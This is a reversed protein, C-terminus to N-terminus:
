GAGGHGSEVSPAAEAAAGSRQPAEGPPPVEGTDFAEPAAALVGEGLAQRLQVLHQAESAGISAALARPAQTTLHPVAELYGTLTSSTLGYLLLLFDRETRVASMDVESAEAEFSAGLGRLAKTLGDVHEQEQGRLQRVLARALPRRPLKWGEDIASVLTLERGLAVNVIAADAEKEAAKPSTGSGSSGCGAWLLASLAAAVAAARAGHGRVAARM